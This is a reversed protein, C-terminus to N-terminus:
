YDGAEVSFEAMDDLRLALLRGGFICGGDIGVKDRFGEDRWVKAGSDKELRMTPTHGFITTVGPLAKRRYFEERIWLLDRTHQRSLIDATSMNGESSSEAVVDVGAHVLVFDQGGVKLQMLLPLGTVFEMIRGQEEGSLKLLESLTRVGGGGLWRRMPVGDTEYDSSLADIMMREHNGMLM